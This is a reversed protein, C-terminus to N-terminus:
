VAKTNICADHADTKYVAYVGVKECNLVAEACAHRTDRDQEKLLAVLAKEVDRYETDCNESLIINKLVWDSAKEEVTKM